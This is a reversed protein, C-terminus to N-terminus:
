FLINLLHLLSSTHSMASLAQSLMDMKLNWGLTHPCLSPSPLPPSLLLSPAVFLTLLWVYTFM